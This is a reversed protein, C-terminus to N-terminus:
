PLRALIRDVREMLDDYEGAEANAVHRWQAIDSVLEDVFARYGSNADYQEARDLLYAITAYRQREYAEFQANRRKKYEVHAEIADRATAENDDVEALLASSLEDAVAYICGSCFASPESDSDLMEKCQACEVYDRMDNEHGAIHSKALEIAKNRDM